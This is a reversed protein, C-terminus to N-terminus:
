RRKNRSKNKKRLELEFGMRINFQKSYPSEEDHLFNYLGQISGKVRKAFKYRKGIGVFGGNVWKATTEPSKSATPINTRIRDFVLTGYFGKYVQYTGFVRPGQVNTNQDFLFKRNDNDFTFRYLYSGYISLRDNFRYGIFPALDFGTYGSRQVEINFGLALREKLSKGKYPNPKKKPIDKISNLSTYKRKYVALKEQAATLKDQHEAFHEVAAEKAKAKAQQQLYEKDQYQEIEEKYAEQEQKFKEFEAQQKKLRKAEKFNAVKDEARQELGELDGAKVRALEEQYEGAKGSVEKTKNLKETANQVGDISKVKDVQEKPTNKVKDLKQTYQDTNINTKEKLQDKVDLDLNLEKKIDMNTNLEQDLKLDTNLATQDLGLDKAPLDVGETNPLNLDTNVNANPLNIDANQPLKPANIDLDQVKDVKGTVKDKFANVKAEAKQELAAIKENAKQTYAQQLSDLKQAYREHPLEFQQLSDLRAQTAQRISDLNILEPDIRSLSDFKAKLALQASDLGTTQLPDFTGLPNNLKQEISDVANGTKRFLTDLKGQQARAMSDIATKASYHLSDSEQAHTEWLPILLLFTIIILNKM